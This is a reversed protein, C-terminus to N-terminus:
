KSPPPAAPLDSNWTDVACKWGGDAQKKWIEVYKGHDAIPKGKSDKMTLEYTGYTYAIEGSRAVEAKTTQWKLSVGPLGLLGAVSKRVGEKNSATVDNDPLVVADDSYYAMWADVQNSQAAASWDADAKRVAAEDAARTDPPALPQQASNCGLLVVTCFFGVFMVYTVIVKKRWLNSM